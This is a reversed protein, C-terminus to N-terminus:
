VNMRQSFHIALPILRLRRSCRGNLILEVGRFKNRHLTIDMGPHVAPKRQELGVMKRDALVIAPERQRIKRRALVGDGGPMFIVSGLGLVHRDRPVLGLRDVKAKFGFGVLRQRHGAPAESGPRKQKCQPDPCDPCIRPFMPPLSNATITITIANAEATGMMLWVKIPAETFSGSSMEVWPESMSLCSSSVM